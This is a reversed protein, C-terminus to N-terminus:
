ASRKRFPLVKGYTLSRWAWEVPGYYFHSLWFLSLLAFVTFLGTAIVFLYLPDLSGYLRFGFSYFLISFIVTHMLYVTLAMRGMGALPALSRRVFPVAILLMFGVVYGFIQCFSSVDSIISQLVFLFSPMGNKELGALWLQNVLFGVAVIGFLTLMSKLWFGPSQSFTTIFNKRGAYFGFLLFALRDTESALVNVQSFKYLYIGIRYQLIQLYSATRYFAAIENFGQSTVPIQAVTRFSYEAVHSGMHVFYLMLAVSLVVKPPRGALLLLIFGYVAYVLLIDEEWVFVVHLVGFFLLIALRRALFLYPNTGKKLSKTFQISIGLGFLFAFIPYFRGVFFWNLGHFLISNLSDAFQNYYSDFYADPVNFYFINVLIVGFLALGRLIDLEQVRDLSPGPLISGFPQNKV